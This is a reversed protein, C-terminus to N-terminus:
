IVFRQKKFKDKKSKEQKCDDPYRLCFCTHSFPAAAPGTESLQMTSTTAYGLLGVLFAGAFAPALYRGHMIAERNFLVLKM